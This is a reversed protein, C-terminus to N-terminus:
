GVVAGVDFKNRSSMATHFPSHGMLILVMHFRKKAVLPRLSGLSGGGGCRSGGGGLGVLSGGGSNRIIQGVCRFWSGYTPKPLPAKSQSSPDRERDDNQKRKEPM